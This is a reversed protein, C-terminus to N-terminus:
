APAPGPVVEYRLATVGSQFMRSEKLALPQRLESEAFLPRGKGVVVPQIRVNVEDVLHEKWLPALITSSGLLLISGGTGQKQDRIIDPISGRVFKTNKWASSDLTRSFVIKPLETMHEAIYPEQE